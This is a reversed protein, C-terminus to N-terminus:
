YSERYDANPMVRVYIVQAGEFPRGAIYYLVQNDIPLQKGGGDQTGLEVTTPNEPVPLAAFYMEGPSISWARIDAESKMFLGVGPIYSAAKKAAISVVKKKLDEGFGGTTSAQFYTDGGCTASVPTGGVGALTVKSELYKTKKWQAFQGIYPDPKRYPGWGVDLVFIACPTSGDEALRESSITLAEYHKWADSAESEDGDLFSARALGYWGLAFQPQLEVVKRLSVRAYQYDKARLARLGDLFHSPAFDDVQAAEKGKDEEGAKAFEIRSENYKGQQMYALGLYTHALVREHPFGRYLRGSESKFIQKAVDLGGIQADLNAVAAQFCVEADRYNGLCLDVSGLSLLVLPYNKDGTKAELPRTIREAKSVEGRRYAVQGKQLQSMSGACGVVLVMAVACVMLSVRASM